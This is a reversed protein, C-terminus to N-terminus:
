GRATNYTWSGQSPLTAARASGSVPVGPCFHGLSSLCDRSMPGDPRKMTGNGFDSYDRLYVFKATSQKGPGIADKLGLPTIIGTVFLLCSFFLNIKAVTSVRWNVNKSGASDSRM